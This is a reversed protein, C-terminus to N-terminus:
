FLAKQSSRIRLRSDCSDLVNLFVRWLVDGDQSPTGAAYRSAGSKSDVGSSRWSRAGSSPTSKRTNPYALCM